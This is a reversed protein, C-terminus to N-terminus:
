PPEEGQPLGNTGTGGHGQINATNAYLTLPPPRILRSHAPGPRSMSGPLPYGWMGLAAERSVAM